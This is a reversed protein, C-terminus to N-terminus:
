VLSSFVSHIYIFPQLVPKSVNKPLRTIHNPWRISNIVDEFRQKASNAGGAGPFMHAAFLLKTFLYAVIGLASTVLLARFSLFFKGLFVAHMFDLATQTSPRWGPIWDLASWRVGHQALITTQRQPPSDKHYFKQKLM